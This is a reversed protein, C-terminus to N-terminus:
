NGNVSDGVSGELAQTPRSNGPSWIVSICSYRNIICVWGYPRVDNKVPGQAAAKFYSRTNLNLDAIWRLRNPQHSALHSCEIQREIQDQLFPSNYRRTGILQLQIKLQCNNMNQDAM